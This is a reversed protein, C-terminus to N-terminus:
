NLHSFINVFSVTGTHHPLMIFVLEMGSISSRGFDRPKQVVRSAAFASPIESRVACSQTSPPM